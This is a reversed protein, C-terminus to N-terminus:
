FSLCCYIKPSINNREDVRPHKLFDFRGSGLEALVYGKQENEIKMWSVYAADAVWTCEGSEGEREQTGYEIKISQDKPLLMKKQQARGKKNDCV